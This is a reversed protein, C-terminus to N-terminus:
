HRASTDNRLDVKGFTFGMEKLEIFTGGNSLHNSIFQQRELLAKLITAGKEQKKALLITSQDM